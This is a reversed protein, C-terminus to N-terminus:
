EKITVTKKASWASYYKKGNAVKYTRIRVYYKKGKTLKGITKSVTASKSIAATKKKSFNSKLSYQIQYGTVGTKKKWKVTMRGAKNSVASSISTKVPVTVSIKKTVTKYNGNGATITIMATGSFKMVITVKGTSDM